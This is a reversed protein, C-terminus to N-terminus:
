QVGGKWDDKLFTIDKQSVYKLLTEVPSTDELTVPHILYSIVGCKAFVSDFYSIWTSTMEQNLNKKNHFNFDPPTTLPIFITKKIKKPQLYFSFCKAPFGFGTSFDFKFGLDSIVQNTYKNASLWPTRVAFVDIGIKRFLERAASLESLQQEYSMNSFSRHMLGHCGITIEDGWKRIRNCIRELGDVPYPTVFVWCPVKYDRAIELISRLTGMKTDEISTSDIDATLVFIPNDIKAKQMKSWYYTKILFNNIKYIKNMKKAKV